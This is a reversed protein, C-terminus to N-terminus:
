TNWKDGAVDAVVEFKLNQEELIWKGQLLWSAEASLQTSNCLVSSVTYVVSNIGIVRLLSHEDRLMWGRAQELSFPKPRPQSENRIWQVQLRLTKLQTAKEVAAAITAKFVFSSPSNSCFSCFM